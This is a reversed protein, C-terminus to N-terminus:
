ISYSIAAVIGKACCICWLSFVFIVKAAKYKCNESSYNYNIKVKLCYQYLLIARGSYGQKNCSFETCDLLWFGQHYAFSPQATKWASYMPLLVISTWGEQCFGCSAVPLLFRFFLWSRYLEESSCTAAVLLFIIWWSLFCGDMKFKSPLSSRRIQMIITIQIHHSNAQALSLSLCM